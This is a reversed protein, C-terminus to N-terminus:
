VEKTTEDNEKRATNCFLFQNHKVFSLLNLWLINNLNGYKRNWMKLRVSALTLLANHFLTGGLNNWNVYCPSCFTAACPEVGLVRLLALSLAPFFKLKWEIFYRFVFLLMCFYQYLPKMQHITSSYLKTWLNLWFNPSLQSQSNFPYNFFSVCKILSIGSVLINVNAHRYREYSWNWVPFCM